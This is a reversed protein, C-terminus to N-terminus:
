DPPQHRVKYILYIAALIAFGIFVSSSQSVEHIQVWHLPVDHQVSM